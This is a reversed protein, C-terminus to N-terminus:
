GEGVGYEVESAVQLVEEVSPLNYLPIGVAYIIESALTIVEEDTLLETEKQLEEKLVDQWALGKGRLEFGFRM